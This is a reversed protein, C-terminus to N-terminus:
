GRNPMLFHFSISCSIRCRASCRVPRSEELDVMGMGARVFLTGEQSAFFFTGTASNSAGCPSLKALMSVPPQCTHVHAAHKCIYTGYLM